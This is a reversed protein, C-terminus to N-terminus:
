RANNPVLPDKARDGSLVVYVIKLYIKVDLDRWRDWHCDAFAEGAGLPEEVGPGPGGGLEVPKGGGGFLEPGGYLPGPGLGNPDGEPAGGCNTPRGPEEPGGNTGGPAPLGCK